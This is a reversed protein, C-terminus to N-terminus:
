KDFAAVATALRAIMRSYNDENRDMADRLTAVETVDRALGSSGHASGVEVADFTRREGRAVAGARRKWLGAENM